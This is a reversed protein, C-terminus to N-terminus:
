FKPNMGVRPEVEFKVLSGSNTEIVVCAWPPLANYSLSHVGKTNQHVKNKVYYLQM